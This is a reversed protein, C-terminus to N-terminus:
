SPAPRRPPSASGWQLQLRSGSSRKLWAPHCSWLRLRGALPLSSSGCSSCWGWGASQEQAAQDPWCGGLAAVGLVADARGDAAEVDVAAQGAQEVELLLLQVQLQLNYVM